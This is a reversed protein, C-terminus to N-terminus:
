SKTFASIGLLAGSYTLFSITYELGKGKFALVTAIVFSAVSLIRKSSSYGEGDELFSKIWAVIKNFIEVFKM